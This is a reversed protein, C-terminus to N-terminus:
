GIASSLLSIRQGSPNLHPVPADTSGTRPRTAPTPSTPSPVPPGRAATPRRCRSRWGTRRPSRPQEGAQPQAVVSQSSRSPASRVPAPGARDPPRRRVVAVDQGGRQRGPDLRPNAQVVERQRPPEGRRAAEQGLRVPRLEPGPVDLEDGLRETVQRAAPLRHVLRVVVRQGGVAAPAPRGAVVVRGLRHPRRRLSAVPSRPLRPAASGSRPGTADIKPSDAMSPGRRRGAVLGAAPRSSASFQRAPSSSNRSPTSRTGPRRDPRRPRVQGSREVQDPERVVRGDADPAPPQHRIRRRAPTAARTVADPGVAEAEHEVAQVGYSGPVGSSTASYPM